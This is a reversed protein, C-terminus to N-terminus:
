LLYHRSSSANVLEIGLRLGPPAIGVDYCRALDLPKLIQDLTPLAANHHRFFCAASVRM